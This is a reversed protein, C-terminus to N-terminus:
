ADVSRPKEKIFVSVIGTLVLLVGFVCVIAAGSPLDQYFSVMLGTVGGVLSLVM